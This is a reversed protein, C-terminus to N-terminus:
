FMWPSNRLIEWIDKKYLKKSVKVAKFNNNSLEKQRDALLQKRKIALKRCVDM